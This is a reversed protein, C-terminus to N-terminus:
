GAFQALFAQSQEDLTIVGINNQQWTDLLMAIRLVGEKFLDSGDNYQELLHFANQWSLSSSSVYNVYKEVM